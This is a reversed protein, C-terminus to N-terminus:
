EERLAFVPDVRSARLAPVVSAAAAVVLLIAVSGATERLAPVLGFLLATLLAVGCAFGLIRWNPSLDLYVPSSRSILGVLVRGGWQAIGIGAAAGALSLLLSETVLQRTLRARSAGLALRVAVERRRSAGRAILLNAVNACAVLLVVAVIAALAYLAKRQASRLYSSGMAGPETGFRLALHERRVKESVNGPVSEEMVPLSLARLGADLQAPSIGPLPRGMVMLFWDRRHDLTGPQLVDNACLPAYLADVNGVSVGFFKEESVGVIRFPHGALNISRGIVSPDGGYESRWFSYGLVAVAPCGRFDDAATLLRGAAPRVGLASFYEGSVYSGRVPRVLGTAALDSRFGTAVAFVTSFLKQRDRFSEWVPNTLVKQDPGLTVRVLRQPDAVPLPRLLLSDILSFIATNAGIGLALSAVTVLTFVPSAILSRAAYRVDGRISDLVPFLDADRTREKQGGRNGFRRRAELLAAAPAMGQAVLDDAREHIHFEIERDLERSHENSRLFNGVRRLWSM